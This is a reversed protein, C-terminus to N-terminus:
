DQGDTTPENGMPEALGNDMDPTIGANRAFALIEAENYRRHKGPVRVVPLTGDNTWARATSVSVGLIEAVRSIPILRAM